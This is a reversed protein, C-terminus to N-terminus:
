TIVIARNGSTGFPNAASNGGVTFTTTNTGANYANLAVTGVAVGDVLVSSFFGNPQNGSVEITTQGGSVHGTASTWSLARITQGKFLVRNMSGIAGPLAASNSGASIFGDYYQTGKIAVTTSGVAMTATFQGSSGAMMATVGTM